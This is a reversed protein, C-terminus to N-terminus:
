FTSYGASDSHLRLNFTPPAEIASFVDANLKKDEGRLIVNLNAVWNGLVMYFAEEVPMHTHTM